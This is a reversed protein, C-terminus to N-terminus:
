DSWPNGEDGGIAEVYAGRGRDGVKKTKPIRKNRETPARHPLAVTTKTKTKGDSDHEVSRDKIISFGGGAADPAAMAVIPPAPPPGAKKGLLPSLGDAAEKLDGWTILVWCFAPKQDDNLYYEKRVSLGYEDEDAAQRFLKLLVKEWRKPELVRFVVKHVGQGEEEESPQTEESIMELINSREFVDAFM